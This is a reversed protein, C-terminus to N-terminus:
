ASGDQIGKPVSSAMWVRLARQARSAKHDRRVKPERSVPLEWRGLQGQPDLRGWHGRPVRSAKRVWRVKHDQRVKRERPM